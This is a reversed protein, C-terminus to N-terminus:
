SPYFRDHRFFPCELADDGAHMGGMVLNADTVGGVAAGEPPVQLPFSLVDQARRGGTVTDFNRRGTLRFPGDFLDKFSCVPDTAGGRVGRMFFLDDRGVDVLQDADLGETFRFKRRHQQIMGEGGAFLEVDGFDGDTEVLEVEDVIGRLGQAVQGVVLLDSIGYQPDGRFFGTM